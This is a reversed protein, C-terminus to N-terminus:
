YVDWFEMKKFVMIFFMNKYNTKTFKSSLVFCCFNVVNKETNGIKFYVRVLCRKLYLDSM